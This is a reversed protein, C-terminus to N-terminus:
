GRSSRRTLIMIVMLVAIIVCLFFVLVPARVMGMDIWLSYVRDMKTGVQLLVALETKIGIDLKM